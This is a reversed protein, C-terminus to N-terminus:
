AIALGLSNCCRGNACNLWRHAHLASRGRKRLTWRSTKITFNTSAGDDREECISSNLRLAVIAFCSCFDLPFTSDKQRTGKAAAEADFNAASQGMTEGALVLWTEAIRLWDVKLEPTPAKEAM